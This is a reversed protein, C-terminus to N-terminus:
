LLTIYSRCGRRRFCRAISLAAKKTDRVALFTESCAAGYRMSILYRHKEEEAVAPFFITKVCKM